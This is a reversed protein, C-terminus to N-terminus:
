PKPTSAEAIFEKLHKLRDWTATHARYHNEVPSSRGDTPPKGRGNNFGHDRAYGELKRLFTLSKHDTRGAQRMRRYIWRDAEFEQDDMYAFPIIFMYLKQLTGLPLKLMGPDRLCKLAHQLDVHAMEHGVAFELAFDEDEGILDFLGRCVYIYGGPHSFAAVADSEIVTFTYHVDKRECTKLYPEAAEQVRQQWPGSESRKNFQMILDHLEAGLRAEDQPGFQDLKWSATLHEQQWFPDVPTPAAPVSPNSTTVGATPSPAPKVEVRATPPPTSEAVDGTTPRIAAPPEPTPTKPQPHDPPAVILDAVPTTGQEVPPPPTTEEPQAPVKERRLAERYADGTGHVLWLSGAVYLCGVVIAVVNRMM